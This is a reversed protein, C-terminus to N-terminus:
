AKMRLLFQHLGRWFAMYANVRMLLARREIWNAAQAYRAGDETRRKANMYYTVFAKMHPRVPYGQQDLSALDARNDANLMWEAVTMLIAGDISSAYDTESITEGPRNAHKLKSAKSNLESWVQGATFGQGKGAASFLETFASSITRRNSKNLDRLIQSAPAILTYAVLPDGDSMFVRIAGEIQRAALERKDILAM